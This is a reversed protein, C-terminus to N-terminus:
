QKSSNSPTTNGKSPAGGKEGCKMTEKKYGSINIRFGQFPKYKVQYLNGFRKEDKLDAPSKILAEKELLDKNENYIEMVKKEYEPSDKTVFRNNLDKTVFEPGALAFKTEFSVKALELNSNKLDNLAKAAYLSRQEALDLNRKDSDPDIVKKGSPGPKYYPTRSSNSSVSIDTIIMNPNLLVQQKNNSRISELYSKLEDVTLKKLIIELKEDKIPSAQPSKDQNRNIALKADTSEEHDNFDKIKAQHEQIIKKRELIKEQSALLRRYAGQIRNRRGIKDRYKKRRFIGLEDSKKGLFLQLLMLNGDFNVSSQIGLQTPTQYPLDRLVKNRLQDSIKSEKALHNIANQRDANASHNFQM